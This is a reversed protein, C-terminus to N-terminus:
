DVSFECKTDVIHYRLGKNFVIQAPYTEKPENMNYIRMIVNTNKPEYRSDKLKGQYIRTVSGDLETTRTVKLNRLTSEHDHPGMSPNSLFVKKITGKTSNNIVTLQDAGECEDDECVMCEFRSTIDSSFAYNINALSTIIILAPLLNKM